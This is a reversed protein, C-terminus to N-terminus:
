HTQMKCVNAVRTDSYIHMSIRADFWLCDCNFRRLLDSTHDVIILVARRKITTSIRRCAKSLKKSENAANQM